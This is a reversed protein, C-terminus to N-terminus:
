QENLTWDYDLYEIDYEGHSLYQVDAKGLFKSIFSLVANEERSHGSFRGDSGHAEVFDGGFWKFIPSLHVESGSRDIRFKESNRLVDSTQDDLQADLRDGTFPENRLPPCGIAACVLAVHIRPEKFNSRLRKHEIEDLTMERGMVPFKLEDWVGPIQRISNKPFRLSAIFSSQIPYHDIIAQLTLANYANIWFAIKEKDSWRDYVPPPLAGIAAAFADLKGRNAKLGRYNVMGSDDVYTKLTAAYNEYDFDQGADAETGAVGSLVGIGIVVALLRVRRSLRGPKKMKCGGMNLYGRVGACNEEV